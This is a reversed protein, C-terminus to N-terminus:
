FFSNWESLIQIIKHICNLINKLINNYINKIKISLEFKIFIGNLDLKKYSYERLTFLSKIKIENSM